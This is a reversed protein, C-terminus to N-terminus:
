VKNKASDMTQHVVTPLRSNEFPQNLYDIPEFLYMKFLDLM